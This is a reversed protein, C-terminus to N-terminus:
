VVRIYKGHHLVKISLGTCSIKNCSVPLTIISGKYILKYFIKHLFKNLCIIIILTYFLHFKEIYIILNTM